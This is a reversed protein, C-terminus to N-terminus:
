ASSDLSLLSEDLTKSDRIEYRMGDVDTFLVRGDPLSRIDCHQKVQVTRPGRETDLAWTAVDRDSAIRTIGLVLTTLHGLALQQDVLTRSAADLEDLDAIMGLEEGHGDRFLICRRPAALPFPSIVEVRSVTTGDPLELHLTNFSDRWLKVGHLTRSAVPPDEAATMTRDM